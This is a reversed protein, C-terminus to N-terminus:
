LNTTTRMCSRSSSTRCSDSRRNSARCRSPHIRLLRSSPPLLWPWRAIHSNTPICGLGNSSKLSMGQISPRIHMTCETRCCTYHCVSLPWGSNRTWDLNGSASSTRTSIKQLTVVLSSNAEMTLPMLGMLGVMRLLLGRCKLYDARYTYMSVNHHIYSVLLDALHAKMREHMVSLKSSLREVDDKVYNELGEIDLGNEHLCHLISEEKTFRNKWQVNVDPGAGAPVPVPIKPAEQYIGLTQVLKTFFDGAIDTVVDLASPQFEEFGAHYFIKAVSRQLAARCVWPAVIASPDSVVVPDVDQERFRQPDYKQFQNQYM